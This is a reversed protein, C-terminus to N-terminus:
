NPPSAYKSSEKSMEDLLADPVHLGGYGVGLRIGPRTKGHFDSGGSVLLGHKRALTLVNRVQIPSHESYHAEIGDLRHQALELIIRECKAVTMNDRTMPHAWIALGGAAHITDLCERAPLVFRPVYAPRGRGILTDFAERQTRVYGREVLAAAIHPRGVVGPVSRCALVEELTLAYGMGNLRRVMEANREDRWRVYQECAERLRPCGGDVFLGVMHCHDGKELCCSFEIGPIACLEPHGAAAALFEELGAISAHDTLAIATLGAGVAGEILEARGLRGESMAGHTHLDLMIHYAGERIPLSM